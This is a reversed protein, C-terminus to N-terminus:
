LGQHPFFVKKKKKKKQLKRRDMLLGTMKKVYVVNPPISSANIVGGSVLPIRHTM